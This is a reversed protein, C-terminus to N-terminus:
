GRSRRRSSATLAQHRIWEQIMGLRNHVILEGATKRAAARAWDVAEDKREFVKSARNSGERTVSWGGASPIVHVRNKEAVVERLAERVKPSKIDIPRM